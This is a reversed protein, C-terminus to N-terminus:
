SKRVVGNRAFLLEGLIWRLYLVSKIDVNVRTVNERTADGSTTIGIGEVRNIFTSGDWKM